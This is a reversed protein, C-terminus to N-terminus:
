GDTVVGFFCGEGAFGLRFFFLVFISYISIPCEMAVAVIINQLAVKIKLLSYDCLSITSFFFLFLVDNRSYDRVFVSSRTSIVAVFNRSECM